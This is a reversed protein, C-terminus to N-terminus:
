AFIGHKTLFNNQFCRLITGGIVAELSKLCTCSTWFRFASLFFGVVKVCFIKAYHVSVILCLSFFLIILRIFRILLSVRWLFTFSKVSFTIFDFDSTRFTIYVQEKFVTQPNFFCLPSLLMLHYELFVWVFCNRLKETLFGEIYLVPFFFGYRFIEETSLLVILFELTMFIISIELLLSILFSLLSTLIAEIQIGVLCGPNKDCHFDYNVITLILSWEIVCYQIIM